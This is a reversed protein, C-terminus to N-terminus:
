DLPNRFALFLVYGAKLKSRDVKAAVPRNQQFVRKGPTTFNVSLDFHAQFYPM